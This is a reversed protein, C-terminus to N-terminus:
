PRAWPVDPALIPPRVCAAAYGAAADGLWDSCLRALRCSSRCWRRPRRATGCRPPFFARRVRVRSIWGPPAGVLAFPMPSIGVIARGEDTDDRAICPLLAPPDAVMRVPLGAAVQNSVVHRRTARQEVSILPLTITATMRAVGRHGVPPALPRPIVIAITSTLDVAITAFARARREPRIETGESPDV